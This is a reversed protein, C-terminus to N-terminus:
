KLCVCRGPLNKVAGKMSLTTLASLVTGSPLGTKDIIEDASIPEPTVMALIRQETETLDAPYCRSVSYSSNEGNDVDKKDDITKPSSPNGPLVPIQAVKQVAAAPEEEAPVAGEWHRIYEPYKGEYLCAIDWGETVLAAGDRLLRNSGAGTAANLNTPVAYLDRGQELAYRATIMAGSKEPAEVVLVGDSLASIIRNRRPFNWGHAPTGPPYESIVCCKTAVKEFLERNSKPYVVDVGCGLVCVPAAGAAFAGEMAKTDIGLAGGSVVCMGCAALEAGFRRAMSLGYASAKRTGVIGVSPISDFDPFIGRYYLVLPPQGTNALKQPYQADKRTLIRIDKEQCVAIIKRAPQLDKNELEGIVEVTIDPVACLEERQACYIDEPDSFHQLLVEKWHDTLKQEAFWIWHALM